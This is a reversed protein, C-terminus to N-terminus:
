VHHVKTFLHFPLGEVGYPMAPHIKFGAWELWRISATNRADVYNVLLPHREHMSAVVSITARLFWRSNAALRDTALMWPCGVGPMLDSLGFIAFPVWDKDLCAYSWVSGKMSRLLAVGPSDGSTARVEQRDCERMDEAVRLAHVPTAPIIHM